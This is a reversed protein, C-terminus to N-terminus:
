AHFVKELIVLGRTKTTGASKWGAMKFCYGPNKSEIEQPNVYTYVRDTQPWKARALAEAYIILQSSKIRGGFANENRFFACNIGIQGSGDIFKRWGFIARCDSSLLVLKEGPGMVLHRQRYSTNDRRRDAYQYCSYHRKYIASVRPDGDKVPIWLYELLAGLQPMRREGCAVM